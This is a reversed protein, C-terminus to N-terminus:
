NSEVLSESGWDSGLLIPIVTYPQQQIGIPLMDIHEFLKDIDKYIPFCNSTARLRLWSMNVDNQSCLHGLVLVGYDSCLQILIFTYPQQQISIMSLMHIHEFEKNIDLISTPLLKLQNGAALRLWSVMVDTQSWLHCLIGFESGLQITIVTYSPQQQIGISLM